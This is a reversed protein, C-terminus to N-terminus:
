NDFAIPGTGFGFAGKEILKILDKSEEDEIKYSIKRKFEELKSSPQRKIYTKNIEFDPLM